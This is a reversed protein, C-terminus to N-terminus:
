PSMQNSLESIPLIIFAPMIRTERGGTLRVLMTIGHGGSVVDSYKVDESSAFGLTKGTDFNVVFHTEDITEVLDENLMGKGFERWVEGFQFAVRKEIDLQKATSIMLKGRQRRPVIKYREGFRQVWGSNILSVLPKGADNADPLRSQFKLTHLLDKVVVGLLRSSIKMGMKALREFESRLYPHLVSTWEAKKRGRVKSVKVLIKWRGANVLSNGASTGRKRKKTRHSVYTVEEECLNEGTGEVMAHVQHHKGERAWFIVGSFTGCHSGHNRESDRDGSITAGDM